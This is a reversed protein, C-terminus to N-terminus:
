ESCFLGDREGQLFYELNKRTRWVMLSGLPYNRMISDFLKVIQSEKWVYPRQIAPLVYVDDMTQLKSVISNVSENRNAM